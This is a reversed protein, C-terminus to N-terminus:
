SDIDLTLLFMLIVIYRNEVRWQQYKMSCVLSGSLSPCYDASWGIHVVVLRMEVFVVLM